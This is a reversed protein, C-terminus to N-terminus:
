EDTNLQLPKVFLVLRFEKAPFTSGETDEYCIRVMATQGIGLNASIPEGANSQEDHKQTNHLVLTDGLQANATENFFKINLKDDNTYVGQSGFAGLYSVGIGIIEYDFNAVFLEVDVCDGNELSGYDKVDFEMVGLAVVKPQADIYALIAASIGKLACIANVILARFTFCGANKYNVLGGICEDEGTYLPHESCDCDECDSGAGYKKHM